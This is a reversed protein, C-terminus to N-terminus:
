SDDGCIGLIAVEKGSTQMEGGGIHMLTFIVYM